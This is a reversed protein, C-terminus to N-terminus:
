GGKRGRFRDVFCGHYSWATKGGITLFMVGVDAHSDSIRKEVQQTAETLRADQALVLSRAGVFLGLAFALRM